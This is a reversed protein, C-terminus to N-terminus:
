REFRELFGEQKLQNWLTTDLFSLPDATGAGPNVAKAQELVTRVEKETPRPLSRLYKKAFIEYSDQLILPDDTRLYKKLLNISFEKNQKVHAIGEILGKLFGLVVSRQQTLFAKTTAICGTPYDIGLEAFDSLEHFGLKKAEMLAPPALTGADIGGAKLAALIEPIGGFQVLKVDTSPNLNNRRLYVRAAFDTLSGYRTIGLTRGKLALPSLVERRTMLSQPIINILTAIIVTDAGALKAFIPGTGAVQAIPTDGSIIASSAKTASGIYILRANLNYKRFFGGDYAGWIGLSAASNASYAVYLTEQALSARSAVLLSWILTIYFVGKATTRM